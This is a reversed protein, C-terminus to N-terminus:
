GGATPGTAGTRGTPGTGGQAGTAGTISAGSAGTAGAAGTAGPYRGLSALLAYPKEGDGVKINFTDTEIALEGYALIQNEAFLEAATGGIIPRM